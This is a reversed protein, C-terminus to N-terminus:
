LKSLETHKRTMAEDVYITTKSSSEYTRLLVKSTTEMNGGLLYNGDFVEQV